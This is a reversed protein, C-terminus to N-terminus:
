RGRLVQDPSFGPAYVLISLLGYSDKAFQFETRISSYHFRLDGARGSEKLKLPTVKSPKGYLAEITSPSDGFRAGLSTKFRLNQVQQHGRTVLWGESAPQLGFGYAVMVAKQNTGDFLVYWHQSEGARWLYLNLGNPLREGDYFRAGLADIVQQLSMGLKVSGIKEGEVIRHRLEDLQKALEVQRARQASLVRGQYLHAGAGVLPLIVILVTTVLTLRRTPGSGQTRGRVVSWSLWLLAIFGALAIGTWLWNVTEVSRAIGLRNVGFAATGLFVVWGFVILAIRVVSRFREGSGTSALYYAAGFIILMGLLQLVTTGVDTELGFRTPRTAPYFLRLAVGLAAIALIGKQLANPKAM